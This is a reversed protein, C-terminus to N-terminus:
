RSNREHQVTRARPPRSLRGRITLVHTGDARAETTALVAPPAVILLYDGPMVLTEDLTARDSDVVAVRLTM